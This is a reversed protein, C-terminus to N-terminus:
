RKNKNVDWFVNIETEWNGNLFYTKDEQLEAFNKSSLSTQNRKLKIYNKEM